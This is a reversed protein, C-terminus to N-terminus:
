HTKMNVNGSIEFYNNHLNQLRSLDASIDQSQVLIEKHWDLLKQRDYLHYTGRDRIKDFHSVRTGISMKREIVTDNWPAFGQYIITLDTSEYAYDPFHRGPSYIMPCNHISRTHRIFCSDHYSLGNRCTDILQKKPDYYRNLSPDIMLLCPILIMRPMYDTALDDIIRYDGYLFETINLAMRAGQLDREYDMVEQDILESEFFENRSEVIQWNPCHEKIINVSNDTSAYNIMIGHDFIQKHHKLWWPLLYEENYFHSIVTKM